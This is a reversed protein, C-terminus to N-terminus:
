RNLHIFPEPRPEFKFDSLSCERVQNNIAIGFVINKSNASKKVLVITGTQEKIKARMGILLSSNNKRPEM